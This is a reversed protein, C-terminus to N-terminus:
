VSLDFITMQFEELFFQEEKDHISTQTLSNWKEGVLNPEKELRLIKEWLEPYNKRLYRLERDSANPCFWCGGRQSYKYAPSLLEYKQCLDFAMKENYGYKQLLSIQNEKLKKLRNPEDSAIGIYQIVENKNVTKYFEKIAGIKCRSNIVCKGAMPFGAKKGIREITKSRTVVHNFCDVYTKNSHIIRVEYGWGEFLPVCKNKIFNIHEPLEGSVYENFMVEAFLILDLPENHEHALIISATSDKGGSWSLIHM